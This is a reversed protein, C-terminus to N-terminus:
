VLHKDLDLRLRGIEHKKVVFPIEVDKFFGRPIDALNPHFSYATTVFMKTSLFQRIKGDDFCDRRQCKTIRLSFSIQNPHYNAEQLEAKKLDEPCLLTWDYTLYNDWVQSANAFDTRYCKKIKHVSEQNESQRYQVFEINIYRDLELEEDFPDVIQKRVDTYKTSLPNIAHAEKSVDYMYM